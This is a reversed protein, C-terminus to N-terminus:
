LYNKGLLLSFAMEKSLISYLFPRKKNITEFQLIILITNANQCVRMNEM